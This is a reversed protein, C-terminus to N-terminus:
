QLLNNDTGTGTGTGKDKNKKAQKFSDQNAQKKKAVSVYIIGDMDVRYQPANYYCVSELTRFEFDM